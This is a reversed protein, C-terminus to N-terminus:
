RTVMAYLYKGDYVHFDIRINHINNTDCSEITFFSPLPHEPAHAGRLLVDAAVWPQQKMVEVGRLVAECESESYLCLGRSKDNIVRMYVSKYSTTDLILPSERIDICTCMLEGGVLSESGPLKQIYVHINSMKHTNAESEFTIHKM